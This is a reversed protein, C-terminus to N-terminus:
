LCNSLGLGFAGPIRDGGLWELAANNDPVLFSGLVLFNHSNLRANGVANPRTHERFNDGLRNVQEGARGEARVRHIGWQSM